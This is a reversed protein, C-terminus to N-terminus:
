INSTCYFFLVWDRDGSLKYDLQFHTHSLEVFSSVVFATTKTDQAIWRYAGGCMSCPFRELFPAFHLILHLIAFRVSAFPAPCLM